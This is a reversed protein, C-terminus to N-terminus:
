IDAAAKDRRDLPFAEGGDVWGVELRKGIQGEGGRGVDIGRDLGGLRREAFPRPHRDALARAAQLQEGLADILVRVLQRQDVGDIGAVCEGAHKAPSIVSIL